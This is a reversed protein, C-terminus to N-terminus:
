WRMPRRLYDIFPNERPIQDVERAIGRLAVASDSPKVEAVDGGGMQTKLWGPHLCVIRTNMEKEVFAKQLIVCAMNEACKSMGYSYEQSRHNDAISGAESTVCVIATDTKIAPMIAKMVRLFGVANVDVVKAIWDLDTEELPVRDAARIMGACSYVYDLPELPKHFGSIVNNVDETSAINCEAFCLRHDERDNELCKGMAESMKLDMAWVTDGDELHQKVIEIGLGGAAGTVLVNKKM